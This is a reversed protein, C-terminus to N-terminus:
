VKVESLLSEYESVAEERQDVRYVPFGQIGYTELLASSIARDVVSIPLSVWHSPVRKVLIDFILQADRPTEVVYEGYVFKVFTYFSANVDNGYRYGYHLRPVHVTEIRGRTFGMDREIGTMVKDKQFRGQPVNVPIQVDMRLFAPTVYQIVHFLRDRYDEPVYWMDTEDYAGSLPFSRGSSTYARAPIVGNAPVTASGGDYTPLTEGSKLPIPGYNFVERGINARSKVNFVFARNSPGIFVTIYDGERVLGLEDLVRYM